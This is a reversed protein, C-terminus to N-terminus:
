FFTGPIDHGGLLETLLNPVDIVPISLDAPMNNSDFVSQRFSIFPELAADLEPVNVTFVDNMVALAQSIDSAPSSDITLPQVAAQWDIFTAALAAEYFGAARFDIYGALPDGSGIGQITMM